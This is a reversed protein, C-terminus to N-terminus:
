ESPEKMTIQSKIITEINSIRRRLERIQLRILTQKDREKKEKMKIRQKEEQLSDIKFQVYAIREASDPYMEIFNDLVAQLYISNIFFGDKLRLSYVLTKTLTEIEIYINVKAFHSLEKYFYDNMNKCEKNLIGHLVQVKENIKNDPIMNIM